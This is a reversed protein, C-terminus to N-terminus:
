PLTILHSIAHEIRRGLRDMLDLKADSVEKCLATGRRLVAFTGCMMFRGQLWTQYWGADVPNERRFHSKQWPRISALKGDQYPLGWDAGKASSPVSVSIRELHGSFRLRLGVLRPGDAQPM